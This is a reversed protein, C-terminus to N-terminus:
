LIKAMQTIPHPNGGLATHKKAQPVFVTHVQARYQPRVGRIIGGQTLRECLQDRLEESSVFAQGRDHESIEGLPMEEIFSIDLGRDLAFDVLAPVEDQNRGRLIVSNLKIRRFGARRAAEIGALVKGLDGTRTLARFRQPDLSDLSINLRDLGGAKLDGAFRGLGAGNTTMNLEDLGPTAGLYRVLNTVDRRVLPEGGTLRIRRVGLAVLVRGLRGMEELTLVQARPVFTMDEAMCYVCRFDCRDTVSLRVYDITRGFRDQLLPNDTFTDAAM